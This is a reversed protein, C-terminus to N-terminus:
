TALEHERCIQSSEVELLPEGTLGCQHRTGLGREKFHRCTRCVGFVFGDTNSQITRLAKLLLSGLQDRERDTMEGLLTAELADSPLKKRVFTNGRQTLRLRIVRGDAEDTYKEVLGRDELVKVSQSVTGKTMGLYLGLASPTNSYRNCRGLYKLALLHVERFKPDRTAAREESHVLLM